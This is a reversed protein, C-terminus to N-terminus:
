SERKRGGVSIVIPMMMNDGGFGRQRRESLRELWRVTSGGVRGSGGVVLVNLSLAHCCRFRLHHPPPLPPHQLYSTFVALAMVIIVFSAM